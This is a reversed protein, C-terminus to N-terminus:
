VSLRPRNSHYLAEHKLKMGLDMCIFDLKQYLDWYKSEEDDKMLELEFDLGGWVLDM